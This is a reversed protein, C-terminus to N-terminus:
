RDMGWSPCDRGTLKKVPAANSASLLVRMRLPVQPNVPISTKCARFTPAYFTERLARLSRLSLCLFAEHEDVEKACSQSFRMKLM